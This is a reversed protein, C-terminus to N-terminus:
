ENFSFVDYLSNEIIVEELHDDETLRVHIWKM